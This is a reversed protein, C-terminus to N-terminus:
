RNFSVTRSRLRHYPHSAYLSLANRPPQKRLTSRSVSMSKSKSPKRNKSSGTSTVSSSRTSTISPSQVEDNIHEDFGEAITSSSPYLSHSSSASLSQLSSTIPSPLRVDNIEVRIEAENIEKNDCLNGLEYGDYGSVRDITQMEDDYSMQQLTLVPTSYSNSESMYRESYLDMTQHGYDTQDGIDAHQVLNQVTTDEEVEPDEIMMKRMNLHVWNDM